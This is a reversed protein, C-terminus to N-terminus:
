RANDYRRTLFVSTGYAVVEVMTVANKKQSFRIPMTEFRVNLVCNAGRLKADETMRLLSEARARIMLPELTRLHGGIITKLGAGFTKFYDSAIVINGCSFGVYRANYGAPIRKLNTVLVEQFIGNRRTISALHSRERYHGIGYALGLLLLVIGGNLFFVILAEM